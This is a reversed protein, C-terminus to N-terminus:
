CAATIDAASTTSTIPETVKTAQTVTSAVAMQSCRGGTTKSGHVPRQLACRAISFARWSYRTVCGGTM